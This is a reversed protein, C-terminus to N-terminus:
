DPKSSETGATNEKGKPSAANARKAAPAADKRPAGQVSDLLTVRGDLKGGEDLALNKCTMKGSFIGTNLIRVTEYVTIDGQCEGGIIMERVKAQANIRGGKVTVITNGILTGKLSGAVILKGKVNLTGDVQCDKDIISVSEKKQPMIHEKLWNLASSLTLPKQSAM